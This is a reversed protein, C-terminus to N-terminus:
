QIFVENLEIEGAIIKARVEELEALMEAPVKAELDHFPALDVGTNELTGVVKGGVFTGDLVSEIVQLTTADM